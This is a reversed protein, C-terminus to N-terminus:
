WQFVTPQTTFLASGVAAIVSTAAQYPQIWTKILAATANNGGTM